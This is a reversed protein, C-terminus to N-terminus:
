LVAPEAVAISLVPLLRQPSAAIQAQGCLLGTPLEAASQATYVTILPLPKSSGQWGTLPGRVIEPNACSGSLGNDDRQWSLQASSPQAPSPQLLQVCNSRQAVLVASGIRACLILLM